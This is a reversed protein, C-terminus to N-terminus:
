GPEGVFWITGGFNGRANNPVMVRWMTNNSVATSSGGVATNNPPLNFGTCYTDTATTTLNQMRTNWADALAASTDTCNYKVAGVLINGTGGTGQLILDTGNLKLDLIINGWNSVSCNKENSIAGPSVTGFAIQPCVDIATLPLVSFNDSGAVASSNGGNDKAYMTCNWGTTGSADTSNHANFWVPFRCTVQNATLNIISGIECSTNVYHQYNDATWSLGSTYYYLTGNINAGSTNFDSGGSEDNATCLCRVMKTQGGYLTVQDVNSADNPEDVATCNNITPAPNSTNVTAPTSNWSSFGAYATIIEGGKFILTLGLLIVAFALIPTLKSMNM